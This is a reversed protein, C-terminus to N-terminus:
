NCVEDCSPLKGGREEPLDSLSLDLDFYLATPRSAELVVTWTRESPSLEEVAEWFHHADRFLWFPPEIGGDLGFRVGILSDPWKTRQPSSLADDLARYAIARVASHVNGVEPWRDVRLSPSLLEARKRWPSALPTTNVSSDRTRKQSMRPSRTEM